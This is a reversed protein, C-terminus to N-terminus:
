LYKSRPSDRKKKKRDFFSEGWELYRSLSKTRIEHEFYDLIPKKRKRKKEEFTRKELM